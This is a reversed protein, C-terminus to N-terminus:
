TRGFRANPSLVFLRRFFRSHALRPMKEKLLAGSFISEAPYNGSGSVVLIKGNSLLATHIPNIPMHTSVTQWAGVVNAQAHAVSAYCAATLALAAVLLLTLSSFTKHRLDSGYAAQIAPQSTAKRGPYHM